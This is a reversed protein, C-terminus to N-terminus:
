YELSRFKGRTLNIRFRVSRSNKPFVVNFRDGSRDARRFVDTDIQYYIDYHSAEVSIRLPKTGDVQDRTFSKTFISGERPAFIAGLETFDIPCAGIALNWDTKDDHRVQSGGYYLYGHNLLHDNEVVSREISPCCLAGAYVRGCDWSTSTGEVLVKPRNPYRHWRGDSCMYVLEVHMGKDNQVNRYVNLLGYYEDNWRLTSFYYFETGVPDSLSPTLVSEPESWEILDESKIRWIERFHRLDFAGRKFYIEYRGSVEAISCTDVEGGVVLRAERSDWQRGDLSRLLYVGEGKIARWGPKNINDQGPIQTDQFAEFVVMYYHGDRARIVSPSCLETKGSSLLAPAEDAMWVTGDSSSYSKVFTAKRKDGGDIRNIAQAYMRYGEPSSVISGYINLGRENIGDPSIVPKSSNVLPQFHIYVGKSNREDVWLHTNLATLIGM